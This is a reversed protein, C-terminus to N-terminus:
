TTSRTRIVLLVAFRSVPRALRQRPQSAQHWAKTALPLVLARPRHPLRATAAAASSRLVLIDDIISQFAMKIKAGEDPRDRELGALYTEVQTDRNNRERVWTNLANLNANLLKLKPDFFQDFLAEFVPADKGLLHRKLRASEAFEAEIGSIIRHYSDDVLVKASKMVFAKGKEMRKLLDTEFRLNDRTLADIKAQLGAMMKAMEALHERDIERQAELQRLKDLWATIDPPTARAAASAGGPVSAKLAHAM